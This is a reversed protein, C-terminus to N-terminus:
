LQKTNGFSFYMNKFDLLMYDYQSIVDQGLGGDYEYWTVVSPQIFCPIEPLITTNTNIKIPFDTLKYIPFDKTGGAGGVTKTTFKGMKEIQEKNKNYYNFSLNSWAAGTDLIFLLTDNVQVVTQNDETLMMNSKIKDDNKFIEIIGNRHIKMSLLAQIEPSGISGNIAYDLEPLTLYEDEMIGFVVNEYLVDGLYLTDAVGISMSITNAIGTGAVIASDALIRIGLRKAVSKTVISMGAGTDITLSVSDNPTRVQVLLLDKKDSRTQIKTNHPISVQMPDIGSLINYRSYQAQYADIAEGVLDGYNDIIKKYINATEKYRFKKAFNEAQMYLLRIMLRPDEKVNDTKLFSDIEKNSEEYRAMVSYVYARLFPTPADAVQWKEIDLHSIQIFDRSDYLKQVDQANISLSLFIIFFLATKKM